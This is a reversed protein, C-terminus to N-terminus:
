PTIIQRTTTSKHKTFKHPVLLHLFTTSYFLDLIERLGVARSGMLWCDTLRHATSTTWRNILWLISSSQFSSLPSRVTSQDVPLEQSGNNGVSVRCQSLKFIIRLTLHRFHVEIRRNISPGNQLDTTEFQSTQIIFCRLFNRLKWRLVSDVSLWGM